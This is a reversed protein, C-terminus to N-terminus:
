RRCRGDVGGSLRAGPPQDGGVADQPQRREQRVRRAAHHARQRRVVQGGGAHLREHDVAQVKRPRRPRLRDGAGATQVREHAPAARQRGIRASELRQRHGARPDGVAPQADGAGAGAPQVQRRFPRHAPLEPQADVYGEAEVVARPRVGVVGRMPLAHPSGHPPGGRAPRFQRAGAIGAGGRRQQERDHLAARVAVQAGAAHLLQRRDAKVSEAEAAPRDGAAPQVVHDVRHGFQHRRARRQVAQPDAAQARQARRRRGTVPQEIAHQRGAVGTVAAQVRVVAPRHRDPVFAEGAAPFRRDFATVAGRAPGKRGGVEM